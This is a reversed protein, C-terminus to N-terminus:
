TLERGRERLARRRRGVTPRTQGPHPPIALAGHRHERRDLPRGLQIDLMGDGALTALAAAREHAVPGVGAARRAPRPRVSVTSVTGLVGM